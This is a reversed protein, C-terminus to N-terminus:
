MTCNTAVGEEIGAPCAAVSDHATSFASVTVILPNPVTSGRAPVLLTDGVDVVVYTSVAFFVVLSSLLDTTTVMVPPPVGPPNGFTVLKVAAGGDTEEPCHETSDQDVSPASVAVMLPNPLTAKVPVCDTQGVWSM